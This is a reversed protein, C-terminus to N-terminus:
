SSTSHAFGRFEVVWRFGPRGACHFIMGEEPSADVNLLRVNNDAGSKGNNSGRAQAGQLYPNLQGRALISRPLLLTWANAPLAAQPTHSVV